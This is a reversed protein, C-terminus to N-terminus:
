RNVLFYGGAVASSVIITLLVGLVFSFGLWVYLVFSVVIGVLDLGMNLLLTRSSLPRASFSDLVGMSAPVDARAGKLTRTALAAARAPETSRSGSAVRGVM